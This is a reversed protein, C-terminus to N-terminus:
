WRWSQFQNIKETDPYRKVIKNPTTTDYAKNIQANTNWMCHFLSAVYDLTRCLMLSIPGDSQRNVGCNEIPHSSVKLRLAMKDLSNM